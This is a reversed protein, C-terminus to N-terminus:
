DTTWNWYQFQIWQSAKCPIMLFHMAQKFNTKLYSFSYFFYNLHQLSGAAQHMINSKEFCCFCQYCPNWRRLVAASAVISGMKKLCYIKRTIYFLLKRSIRKLLSKERTWLTYNEETQLNHSLLKGFPWGHTPLFSSLLLRRWLWVLVRALELVDATILHFKVLCERKSKNAM